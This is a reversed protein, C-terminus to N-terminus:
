IWRTGVPEPTYGNSQAEKVAAEQRERITPGHFAERGGYPYHVALSGHERMYRMKCCFHSDPDYVHREGSECWRTEEVPRGTM